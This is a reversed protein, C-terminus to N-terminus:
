RTSSRPKQAPMVSYGSELDEGGRATSMSSIQPRSRMQIFEAQSQPMLSGMATGFVM